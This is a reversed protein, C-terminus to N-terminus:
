GLLYGNSKKPKLKIFSYARGFPPTDAITGCAKFIKDPNLKIRKLKVDTLLLSTSAM